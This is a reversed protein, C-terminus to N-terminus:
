QCCGELSEVPDFMLKASWRGDNVLAAIERRVLTGLVRTARTCANGLPTALVLQRAVHPRELGAHNLNRVESENFASLPLLSYGLGSKVLEKMLVFSDAQFRVNLRIRAKAAANEAVVRLGHPHSPLILSLEALREFPVLTSPDLGSEPPGVLRIEEYLLEEVKLQFDSAPGYLIAADIEGRQLWDILHAGYGEVVRLSVNPAHAVVSRALPGALVFSTTPPMGFAVNGGVTRSLARVDEFVQEIQRLPGSLRARLEEGAETLTMGRRHREFLPVGVDEELLRIQRSLAPQAIRMREAARSISGLEAIRVFNALRKFDMIM